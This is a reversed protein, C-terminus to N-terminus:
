KIGAAGTGAGDQVKPSPRRESAAAPPKWGPRAEPLRIQGGLNAARAMLVCVTLCAVVLVTTYWRPRALRRRFAWLGYLAWAGCLSAAVLALEAADEHDSIRAPNVDPLNQIIDGAYSGSVYAAVASLGVVVWALLATSHLEDSKRVYAWFLLALAFPAGIVPVHNLLLHM